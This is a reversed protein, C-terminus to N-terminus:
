IKYKPNVIKKIMESLHRDAMGAATGRQFLDNTLLPFSYDMGVEASHRLLLDSTKQYERVTHDSTQSQDYQINHCLEKLQGELTPLLGDISALFADPRLQGQQCIAMAQLVANCNGLILTLLAMNWSKACEINEGVYNVKQALDGFLEINSFYVDESGSIFMIRDGTDPCLETGAYSGELLYANKDKAKGLLIVADQPTGSSLNLIIKGAIPYCQILQAVQDSSEFGTIIIQAKEVEQELLDTDENLDHSSIYTPNIPTEKLRALASDCSKTNGIILIHEIM